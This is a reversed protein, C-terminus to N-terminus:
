LIMGSSVVRTIASVVPSTSKVGAVGESMSSVRVALSLSSTCSTAVAPTVKRAKLVARAGNSSTFTRRAMVAAISRLAMCSLM